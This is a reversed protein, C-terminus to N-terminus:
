SSVPLFFIGTVFTGTWAIGFLVALALHVRRARMKGTVLMGIMLFLAPISFCLHTRLSPADVKDFINPDVFRIIVELGLVATLTLAFFVVNIQGHLKYRGKLLAILSAALLVTVAVVAIQLVLIVNSATVNTEKPNPHSNANSLALRLPGDIASPAADARSHGGATLRQDDAAGAKRQRDRWM